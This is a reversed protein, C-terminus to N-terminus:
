EISASTAHAAPEALSSAVRRAPQAGAVQRSRGVDDAWRRDLEAAFTVDDVVLCGEELWQM